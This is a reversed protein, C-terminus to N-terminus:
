IKRAATIKGGAGQQVLIASALGPAAPTPIRMTKAAGTWDGLKVLDRVINRHPLTRGGNEGARIAVNVSRPDYRVLWVTSTASSKAAGLRLTSGEAELMPGGRAPGAAAITQDLQRRNSGVIAMGGNVIVQPTAVQARGAHRAYEWQRATNRPTAFSDKWGLQDWYTVGFSLALVEPRDAIANINANAPPCSSCGQSQFLEVVVPHSPSAGSVAVQQAPQAAQAESEGPMQGCGALLGAALVAYISPFRTM